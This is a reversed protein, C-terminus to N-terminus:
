EPVDFELAEGRSLYRVEAELGARRVTEAFDSLPSRFVRYDDYHIPVTTQPRILRMWEVGQGADMTVRVGALREGGLHVLGLDITPYRLPIRRLLEYVLTDGSVCIRFSASAKERGLEIMSGMVRPMLPAVLAPGHRAPLSTIRLWEDGKSVTVSQWTDLPRRDTFGQRELVTAAEVTTVIPLDRRLRAAAVHDWHDGHVHSLVCLDLPPLDRADMAPDTLRESRLGYGLHAYDGAHLFDPDTLLTFPGLRILTTATGIFRVSGRELRRRARVREKEASSRELIRTEV